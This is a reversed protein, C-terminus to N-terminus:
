QPRTAAVTSCVTSLPIGNADTFVTIDSATWQDGNLQITRNVTAMTAFTGDSNLRTFRFTAAFM